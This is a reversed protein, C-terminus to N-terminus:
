GFTYCRFTVRSGYAEEGTQGEIRAFQAARELAEKAKHVLNLAVEISFLSRISELRSNMLAAKAALETTPPPVNPSPARSIDSGISLASMRNGHYATDQNQLASVRPNTMDLEGSYPNEEAKPTTTTKATGFASPIVYVPALIVKRFTSLFDRKDAERNINSM